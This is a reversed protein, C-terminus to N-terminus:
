FKHPTTSVPFLSNWLQHLNWIILIFNPFQIYWVQLPKPLISLDMKQEFSENWDVLRLNWIINNKFNELHIVIHKTTRFFNLRKKQKVVCIFFFRKLGVAPLFKFLVPFMNIKHLICLWTSYFNKLLVYLASYCSKMCPKTVQFM